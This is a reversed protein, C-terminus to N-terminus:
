SRRRAGHTMEMRWRHVQDALEVVRQPSSPAQVAHELEALSIKTTGRLLRVRELWSVLDRPAINDPAHLAHRVLQVNSAFYRRLAEGHHGGYSLLAATNRVLFDKGPALPPPPARRPGFRVMAAWMAFLACLVLQITALVLPFGFLLSLLSPSRAHGHVTEDLVVPGGDRLQDILAVAFAANAPDRLGANSIPEPDCLIWVNPTAVAATVLARTAGDDCLQASALKPRPLESDHLGATAADGDVVSLADQQGLAGLVAEIEDRPVRHVEDIWPEGRRATGRWKPLVVLLGHKAKDSSSARSVVVPIDLKRLLEVVGKHGIASLSYADAGTSRGGGTDDDGIVALVVAVAFSSAAVAIVLWLTRRSFPGATAPETV